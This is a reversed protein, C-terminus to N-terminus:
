GRYAEKIDELTATDPLGLVAPWGADDDAALIWAGRHEPESPQAAPEAAVPELALFRLSRSPASNWSTNAACVPAACCIFLPAAAVAFGAAIANGYFLRADQPYWVLLDSVRTTLGDSWAADWAADWASQGFQASALALAYGAVYAALARGM